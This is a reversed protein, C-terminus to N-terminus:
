EAWNAHGNLMVLGGQAQGFVFGRCKDWGQWETPVPRIQPQSLAHGVDLCKLDLESVTSAENKGGLDTLLQVEALTILKQDRHL